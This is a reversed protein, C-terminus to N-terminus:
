ISRIIDTFYLNFKTGFLIYRRVSITKDHTARDVYLIELIPTIMSTWNVVNGHDARLMGILPTIRPATAGGAPSELVHQSLRRTLALIPSAARESCM